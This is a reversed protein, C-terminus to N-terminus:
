NVQFITNKKLNRNLKINESQNAAPQPAETTVKLINENRNEKLLNKIKKYITCIKMMLFSNKRMM